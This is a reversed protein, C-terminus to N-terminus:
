SGKILMRAQEDSLIKGMMEWQITVVDPDITSQAHAVADYRICTSDVAMQTLARQVSEIEHQRDDIYVIRHPRLASLEFFKKLVEGKDAGGAYIIGDAYKAEGSPSMEFSDKIPCTRTLDIGCSLLQDPIKESYRAPSGTLAMLGIGADQLQRLLTPTNPEIPKMDSCEAVILARRMSENKADVVSMGKAVLERYTHLVWQYTGLQQAPQILTNHIDFIVLTQEDIAPLIERIQDVPQADLLPMCMLVTALLFKM